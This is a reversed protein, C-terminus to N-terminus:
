CEDGNATTMKSWSAGLYMDPEAVKDDKLKFDSQIALMSKMPDASRMISSDTPRSRQDFGFMQILTVPSTVLRTLRRQWCRGSRQELVGCAMCPKRTLQRAESGFEM